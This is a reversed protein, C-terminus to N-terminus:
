INDHIFKSLRNEDSVNLGNFADIQLQLWEGSPEGGSLLLNNVQEDIHAALKTLQVNLRKNADDNQKPLNNAESWDAPDITHGTKRRFEKGRSVSLNIFINAPNGNSQLLFRTKAM